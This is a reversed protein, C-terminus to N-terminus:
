KSRKKYAPCQTGYDPCTFYRHEGSPWKIQNAADPIKPMPPIPALCPYAQWSRVGKEGGRDLFKCTRCSQATM